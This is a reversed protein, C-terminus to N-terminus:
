QPGLEVSRLFILQKSPNAKKTKKHVTGHYIVMWVLWKPYHKESRGLM